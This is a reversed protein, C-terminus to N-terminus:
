GAEAAARAAPAEMWAVRDNMPDEALEAAGEATIAHVWIAKEQENVEVSLTGPTLTISNAYTVLGVASAQAASVRVLTPSIPLRPDVIIRAVTLGSLVVQWLLWPWYILGRPLAEMPFGERDILRKQVSFAVVAVTALCGSIVLWAKYNGSLLLWFSFLVIGLTVVRIM